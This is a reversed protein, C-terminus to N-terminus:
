LFTCPVRRVTFGLHCLAAVDYEGCLHLPLLSFGSLILLINLIYLVIGRLCWPVRRRELSSHRPLSLFIKMVFTPFYSLLFFDFIIELHLKHKLAM